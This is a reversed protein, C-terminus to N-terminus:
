RSRASLPVSPVPTKDDYLWAYILYSALVRKTYNRTEDYPITEIFEDMALNGREALWKDVAGEGANYGAITLPAAKSFHAWLFGLFRSGYELNKAPDMLVERTVTAGNSFRRATKVLMQTLGMANAFSEIRPSFASEERMIALQLAEPLNNARANKSVLEPFARPYSLRWKAGVLGEPYHLRYDTLTYRPISHSASWIGARDLLVAAIWLLDDDDHKATPGAKKEGATQLGLRALERRADSGQGMRALDVARLFGVEGFLARPAFKFLAETTASKASAKMGKRLEQIAQARVRPGSEGLRSFSLLTYVSLPYERIAREYLRRAGVPDRKKELVRAKWYLARGEAYWIEEHPISTLNEDLWHIADDWRQGRWASFALRWLGEGLLDGKPYKRPLEALIENAKEEEGADQALEATRLRADDAYSHEAHESEIQAYRKEAAPRDGAAAWSRAGQYLSKARLDRNGAKACAVEAEDFLPAARPRQRQKWVSQARHYRARCELDADLGSANLASAMAAESESNRNRDFYVMGRTVWSNADYGDAARADTAPPASGTLAALRETARESWSDLPAEAWVRKYLAIIEARDDKSLKTASAADKTTDPRLTTTTGASDTSPAADSSGSDAKAGSGALREMAEGQKFMTEARRPGNPFHALYSRAGDAAEKWRGLGRYADIQILQMDTELVSGDPVKLAWTLAEDANGGRLLCRAANYANYPALRPYDRFLTQFLKAADLWKSQNAKALGLLFRAAQREEGANAPLKAIGKALDSEASGWQEQRFAVAAKHLLPGAFFPQLWHSNFPVPKPARKARADKAGEKTEDKTGDKSRRAALIQVAGDEDRDDSDGPSASAM